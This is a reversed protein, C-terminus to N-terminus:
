KKENDGPFYPLGSIRNERLASADALEVSHFKLGLSFPASFARSPFPAGM